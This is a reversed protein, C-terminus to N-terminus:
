QLVLQSFIAKTDFIHLLILLNIIIIIYLGLAALAQVEM